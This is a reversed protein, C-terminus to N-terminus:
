RWRGSPGVPAAAVRVVLRRSGRTGSARAMFPDSGKLNSSPRAAVWDVLPGIVAPDLTHGVPTEHFVLEAGAAAARDRAARGFCVEIVPDHTGHTIAVPLGELRGDSLTFGAVSPVFGSMALVGAAAPRDPGLTLAWAMVCGQSFGGLVMRGPPVGSERALAELWTGLAAFSATFTPPDPFGVRPVVYWHSGGPPLSLPGRPAACLLRRGPDLVDFLGVMDDESAARGHFLVLAGEPEAAAPRLVHDLADLGPM